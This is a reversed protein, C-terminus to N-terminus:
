KIMKILEKDEDTEPEDLTINHPIKNENEDVSVFRVIGELVKDGNMNLVKAYVFMSTAGVKIVKSAFTIIEGSHVPLLYRIDHIQACVLNAEGKIKAAGFFSSEVFWEAMRGAFLTGHHNLDESKILRSSEVYNMKIGGLKTFFKHM